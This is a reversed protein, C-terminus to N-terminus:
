LFLDVLAFHNLSDKEWTASSKVVYEGEGMGGIVGFKNCLDCLKPAENEKETLLIHRLVEM